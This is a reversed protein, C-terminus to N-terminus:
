LWRCRGLWLCCSAQKELRGRCVACTLPVFSISYTVFAIDICLCDSHQVESDWVANASWGKIDDLIGDWNTGSRETDCDSNWTPAGVVLGDGIDAPDSAGDGLEQARVDWM